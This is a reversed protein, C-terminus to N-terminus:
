LSLINDKILEVAFCFAGNAQAMNAYGKSELRGVPGIIVLTYVGGEEEVFLQHSNINFHKVTRAAQTTM